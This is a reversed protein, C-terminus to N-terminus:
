HRFMAIESKKKKFDPLKPVKKEGWVFSGQIIMSSGKKNGFPSFEGFSFCRDVEIIALSSRVGFNNCNFSHTIKEDGEVHSSIHTNLTPLALTPFFNWLNQSISYCKWCLSKVLCERNKVRQELPIAM